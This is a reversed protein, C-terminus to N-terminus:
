DLKRVAVQIKEFLNKDAEAFAGQTKLQMLIDLARQYYRKATERQEQRKKGSVEKALDDHIAGIDKCSQAIDRLSVTNEADANVVKEFSEVSKKFADLAGPLDRRKYKAEGLRTYAVGMHRKHTLSEPESRELDASIALSKEAHLVALDLRKLNSYSVALRSHAQALNQRAQTNFPDREVTETAIQLAKLAFSEVLADNTGEYLSSARIYAVWLGQMLIVDNPNAQVLRECIALAKTTEAEGEAQKGDWSLSIGLLSHAKGVLRLVETEQSSDTRRVEELSTLASRLLPYTEAFQQKNYLIDAQDILTDALAVRLAISGPHEAVLKEYIKQAAVSERISGTIDAVWFRITSLEALNAALLRRGEADDPEKKLLERRIAQAKEYSAIAGKFDGLNPKRPAGQLDGVKEYAAAFESQLQADDGSEAALSDLYKLSQNVLVRRAETSGQLREIKPAIDTLLTNSLQRVDNFRREARDRQRRAVGAQWLAAALGIVLALAVIAVAGVTLKNRRVFRAVRYSLSDKQARTPRGELYSQVDEAFQAVSAYRRAAEERRAMAIINGLEASVFRRQLRHKKNGNEATKPGRTQSRWAEPPFQVNAAFSDAGGLMDQLLVGLSYVDSATTVAAGSIQEPSAYVPTFARFGTQTHDDHHEAD